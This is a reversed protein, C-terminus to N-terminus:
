LNRMLGRFYHNALVIDLEKPGLKKFLPICRKDTPKRNSILKLVHHIAHRVTNVGSNVEAELFKWFGESGLLKEAEQTKADVQYFSPVETKSLLLYEILYKYDPNALTKNLEDIVFLKHNLKFRDSFVLKCVHYLDLLLMDAVENVDQKSLRGHAAKNRFLRFSFAYYEYYLFTGLTRHLCELKHKLGHQLLDNETEGTLLCLDHFVGEIIAPIVLSFMSKAGSQYLSLADQIIEKRQNLVHHRDLWERIDFIIEERHIFETVYEQFRDKDERDMKVLDGLEQISLIEFKNLLVNPESPTFSKPNWHYNYPVRGMLSSLLSHGYCGSLAYQQIEDKMFRLIEDKAIQNHDRYYSLIPKHTQMENTDKRKEIEVLKNQINLLTNDITNIDSQARNFADLLAEKPEKVLDFYHKCIYKHFSEENQLAAELEQRLKKNISTQLSGNEINEETIKYGVQLLYEVKLVDFDVSFPNVSLFPTLFRKSIQHFNLRFILNDKKLTDFAASLDAGNLHNLKKTTASM